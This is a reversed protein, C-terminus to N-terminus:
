RRRAWPNDTTQTQAPMQGLKNAEAQVRAKDENTLRDWIGTNKAVDIHWQYNYKHPRDRFRWYGARMDAIIGDALDKSEAERQKATQAQSEAAQQQRRMKLLSSQYQREWTPQGKYIGTIAAEALANQIAANRAQLTPTGPAFPIYVPNAARYMQQRTIMEQLNDWWDRRPVENGYDVIPSPQGLQRQMATQIINMIRQPISM